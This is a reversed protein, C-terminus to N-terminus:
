PNVVIRNAWIYRVAGQIIPRLWGLFETCYLERSPVRMRSAQRDLKESTM